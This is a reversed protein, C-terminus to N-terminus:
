VLLVDVLWCGAILCVRVTQDSFVQQSMTISDGNITVEELANGSEIQFLLRNMRCLFVSRGSVSLNFVFNKQRKSKRSVLSDQIGGFLYVKGDGAVAAGRFYGRDVM